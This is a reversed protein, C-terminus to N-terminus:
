SEPLIWFRNELIADLTLEAVFEVPTYSLDIGAALMRAEFSEITTYPTTRPTDNAWASPRNKSSELLGTRLVNPGPYLVSVGIDADISHLQGYLVETFATVAAKSTAYVATTPLPAIGGNGSSTNVVHGPEGAALMAPVFAKVGHIMGWLNVNLGWGWDNTTHEWMKGEAGAGVGANNCLVHVNGFASYAEDRLAEVSALDGVDTVAGITRAGQEALRAVTADVREESLDSVVISMDEAAFREALAAGIGGAGGTIVAVRGALDKM